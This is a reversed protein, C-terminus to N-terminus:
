DDSKGELISIQKQLEDRQKKLFDLLVERESPPMIKQQLQGSKEQLLKEMRKRIIPEGILAIRKEMEVSDANGAKIKDIWGQITKKAFEGMAAGEFFFADRYLTYINAGFTQTEHKQQVPHEQEKCRKLFIANERPIDSLVIPSHSTIIIQFYNNPFKDNVEEILDSMINRQWEPHMYLDIEDILLLISEHWEFGTDPIYESVKSAFFLRSIFNLLAREGSSEAFNRIELYKLIFSHGSKIHELWPAFDSLRAKAFTDRGGDYAPLKNDYLESLDVLQKFINIESLANAYYDKEVSEPLSDIFTKSQEYRKNTKDADDETSQPDFDEFVFFMEFLLNCVVASWITGDYVGSAITKYKENVKNIYDKEAFSTQYNTKHPSVTIKKWASKVSFVIEDIQKGRFAKQSQNIFHYFILDILMQFSQANEQSSFMSQLANFATDSIAFGNSLGYRKRYFDQSVTSLAQDTITIHDIRESRMNNNQAYSSNSLYVHSINGIYDEDQFTDGDYPNIQTGDYNIVNSTLNIIKIKEELEVYVAIFSRFINQEANWVKYEDRDEQSLPADSLNTLYEMLTTKGTGNEGIIATVNAINVNRFVNIADNKEIVLESTEPTYSVSYYPSFNFGEGLFCNRKDKNVWLFVLETKM